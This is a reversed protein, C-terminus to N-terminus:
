SKTRKHRQSRPDINAKSSKRSPQGLNKQIQWSEVDFFHGLQRGSSDESRGVREWYSGQSGTSEFRGSVANFTATALNEPTNQTQSFLCDSRHLVAIFEPSSDSTHRVKTQLTISRKSWLNEMELESVPGNTFGSSDIYYWCKSLQSSSIRSLPEMKKSDHPALFTFSPRPCDNLCLFQPQNDTRVKLDNPFYGMSYWSRMESTSFPGQSKGEEDLYFWTDSISIAFPFLDRTSPTLPLWGKLQASADICKFRFDSSIVGAKGLKHIQKDSFPGLEEGSITLVKWRKVETDELGKLLESNRVIGELVEKWKFLAIFQTQEQRRIQLDEHLYGANLWDMILEATFPGQEKGEDDLYFFANSEQDNNRHEDVSDVSEEEDRSDDYLIGFVPHDEAPLFRKLRKGSRLLCDSPLKGAELWNLITVQTFPGLIEASEDLYWWSDDEEAEEDMENSPLELFEDARMFRIEAEGLNALYVCQPLDGRLIWGVLTSLPFGRGDSDVVVELSENLYAWKRENDEEAKIEPLSDLISVAFAPRAAAIPLWRETGKARILNQKSFYGESCWAAMDEEPFPGQVAGESDIYEFEKSM